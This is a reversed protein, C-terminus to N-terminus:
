LRDETGAGGSSRGRSALLSRAVERNRQGASDDRALERLAGEIAADAILDAHKQILQLAKERAGGEAVLLSSSVVGLLRLDRRLQAEANMRELLLVRAPPPAEDLARRMASESIRAKPELAAPIASARVHPESDALAKTVSGRVSTDAWLAPFSRLAELAASRASADPDGIYRALLPSLPDRGDAGSVPGIRGVLGLGAARAGPIPR